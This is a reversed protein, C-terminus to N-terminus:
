LQDSIHRKLTIVFVAGKDVALAELKGDLLQIYYRSIFLGIGKNQRRKTARSNDTFRLNFITELKDKPIPPGDNEVQIMCFEDQAKVRLIIKSMESPRFRTANNILNELTLELLQGRLAVKSDSECVMELSPCENSSIYNVIYERSSIIDEDQNEQALDIRSIVELAAEIRQLEINDSFEKRNKLNHIPTKIEHAVISNIQREKETKAIAVDANKRVRDLVTEFAKALFGIETKWQTYPIKPHSKKSGMKNRSKTLSTSLRALPYGLTSLIWLSAALVVFSFIISPTQARKWLKSLLNLTQSYNQSYYVLIESDNSLSHCYSRDARKKIESEIKKAINNPLIESIFLRFGIEKTQHSNDKNNNSNWLETKLNCECQPDNSKCNKSNKTGIKITEGIKTLGQLISFIDSRRKGTEDESSIFASNDKFISIYAKLDKAQGDSIIKCLPSSYSDQQLNETCFRLRVRQKYPKSYPCRMSEPVAPWRMGRWSKDPSNYFDKRFVSPTDDMGEPTKKDVLIWEFTENTTELQIRIHDGLTPNYSEVKRSVENDSTCYDIFFYLYPELKNFASCVAMSSIKNSYEVYCDDPPQARAGRSNTNWLLKSKSVQIPRIQDTLFFLHPNERFIDSSQLAGIATKMKQDASEQVLSEATNKAMFFAAIPSSLAVVILTIATSILLPYRRLKM